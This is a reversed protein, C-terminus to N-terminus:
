KGEEIYTERQSNMKSNLTLMVRYCKDDLVYLSKIKEMRLYLSTTSRSEYSLMVVWEEGIFVELEIQVPFASSRM